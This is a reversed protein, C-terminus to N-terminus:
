FLKEACEATATETADVPKDIFPPIRHEVFGVREGAAGRKAGIGFCERKRADGVGFLDIVQDDM